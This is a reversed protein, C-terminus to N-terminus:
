PCAEGSDAGAATASHALCANPQGSGRQSVGPNRQVDLRSDAASRDGVGGMDTYLGRMDLMRIVQGILGNAKPETGPESLLDLVIPRVGALALEIAMMLGNPGAGAVVVDARDERM